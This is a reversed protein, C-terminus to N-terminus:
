NPSFRQENRTNMTTLVEDTREFCCSSMVNKDIVSCLWCTRSPLTVRFLHSHTHSTPGGTGLEQKGEHVRSGAGVLTLRPSPVVSLVSSVEDNTVKATDQVQPIRSDASDTYDTCFNEPKDFRSMDFFIKESGIDRGLGTEGSSICRKPYRHWGSVSRLRTLMEDTSLEDKQIQSTRCVFSDASDTDFNVRPVQCNFYSILSLDKSLNETLDSVRWLGTEGSPPCPKLPNGHSGFVSHEASWSTLSTVLNPPRGRRRWVGDHHSIYM